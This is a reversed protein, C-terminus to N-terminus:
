FGREAVDRCQSRRKGAKSASVTSFSNELILLVGAHHRLPRQVTVERGPVCSSRPPVEPIQLGCGWSLPCGQCLELGELGQPFSGM